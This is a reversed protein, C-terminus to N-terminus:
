LCYTINWRRYFSIAKLVSLIIEWHDQGKFM